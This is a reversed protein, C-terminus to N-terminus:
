KKKLLLIALIIGGGILYPTYNPATPAGTAPTGGSPKGSIASYLSGWIDKVVGTVADLAGGSSGGSTLATGSSTSAPVYNTSGGSAREYNEAVDKDIFCSEQGSANKACWQGKYNQYAM